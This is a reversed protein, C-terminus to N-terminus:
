IDTAVTLPVHAKSEPFVQRTNQSQKEPLEGTESSNEPQSFPAATFIGPLKHFVGLLAQHCYRHNGSSSLPLGPEQPTLKWRCLLGFAQLALAQSPPPM